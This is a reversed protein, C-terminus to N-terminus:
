HITKVHTSFALKWGFSKGCFECKHDKKNLHITKAHTSLHGKQGFSKGCEECKHDNVRLTALCPYQNHLPSGNYPLKM